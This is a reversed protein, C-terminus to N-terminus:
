LTSAAVVEREDSSLAFAEELVQDVVEPRQGAQVAAVATEIPLIYRSDPMPLREVFQRNASLYGSRFPAATRSLYWGWLRSNFLGLLASLSWEGHGRVGLVDANDLVAEGGDLTACLRRVLRPVCLKPGQQLALNQARGFRYWTADAFRGGERGELEPRHAHLWRAALPWRADLEEWPLLEARGLVTRYPFLIRQSPLPPM